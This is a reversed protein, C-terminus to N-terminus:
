LCIRLLGIQNLLGTNGPLQSGAVDLPMDHNFSVSMAKNRDRCSSLINIEFNAGDVEAM